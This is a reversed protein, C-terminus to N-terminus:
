EHFFWYNAKVMLRFDSSLFRNQVGQGLVDVSFLKNHRYNVGLSGTLSTNLDGDEDFLSYRSFGTSGLVAIKPTVPYSVSAYLGNNQGGYGKRFNYGVSGYKNRYGLGFRMSEDGDYIQYGFNGTVYSGQALRYNARFGVDQTTSQEFM